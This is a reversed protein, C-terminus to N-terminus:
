KKTLPDIKNAYESAWAMWKPSRQMGVKEMDQLLARIQVAEQRADIMDRLEAIQREKKRIREAKRRLAEEEKLLKVQWKNRQIAGEFTAYMRRYISGIFWNIKQELPIHRREEYASTGGYTVKM